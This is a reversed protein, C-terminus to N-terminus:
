DGSELLHLVNSVQALRAMQEPIQLYFLCISKQLLDNQWELLLALGASDCYEISALNLELRGQEGIQAKLLPELTPVVEYTLRGELKWQSPSQQILRASKVM